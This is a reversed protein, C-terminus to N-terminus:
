SMFRRERKKMKIERCGVYFAGILEVDGGLRTPVIDPVPNITYKSIQERSPMVQSFQNLGVSGMVAIAEVELANIMMGIGQANYDKALEVVWQARENGHQALYFLQESAIRDEFFLTSLNEMGQESCVSNWCGRNGCSCKFTYDVRRELVSHGFEGANGRVPNAQVPKGDLAIGASIGTSLTLLYFSRHLAGVGDNIEAELAANLDNEVCVIPHLECLRQTIDIPSRLGLTLSQLLVGNEVRGPVTLSVSDPVVGDRLKKSLLEIQSCFDQQAPEKVRKIIRPKEAGAADAVLAGRIWTRGVDYAEVLM